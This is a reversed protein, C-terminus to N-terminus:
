QNLEQIITLREKYGVAKEMENIYKIVKEDNNNFEAYDIRDKIESIKKNITKLTYMKNTKLIVKILLICWIYIFYILSFFKYLM